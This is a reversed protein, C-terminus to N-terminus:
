KRMMKLSFLGLVLIITIMLLWLWWKNTFLPLTVDKAEWKNQVEIGLTLSPADAPIKNSFHSLDYVPASISENGYVLYYRAPKDFRIFLEHLYGRVKISDVKLAQNDNNRISIKIKKFITSNFSFKSETLSHITGNYLEAYEYSWGQQTKVSDRLYSISIPRYYDQKDSIFIDIMSVPVSLMLEAEIVTEKIKKNEEIRVNKIAYNRYSAGVISDCSIEASKLEPKKDSEIGIRFYKYKSDPFNIRTFNFDTTENRISLIRYNETITYWNNLDHSGELKLRWDFNNQEFSLDIHNTTELGPVEFTFFNLKGKKSTNITKFVIKGGTMKANSMRIRYPAEITDNGSTFGVIRLDKFDPDMKGFVSDPIMLKHWTDTIGFIERQYRFTANQGNVSVDLLTMFIIAAFYKIKMTQFQM